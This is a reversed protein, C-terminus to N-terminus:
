LPAGIPSGDRLLTRNPAEVPPLTRHAWRILDELAGIVRQHGKESPTM